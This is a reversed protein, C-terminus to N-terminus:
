GGTWRFIRQWLSKAGSNDRMEVELFIAGDDADFFVAMGSM